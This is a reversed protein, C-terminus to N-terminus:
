AFDKEMQRRVSVTANTEDIDVDGNYTADGGVDTWLSSALSTITTCNTGNEDCYETAGVRGTVDLALGTSVVNSNISVNGSSTPNLAIDRGNLTNLVTDFGATDTPLIDLFGNTDSLLRIAVTNEGGSNLTMRAGGSPTTNIAM